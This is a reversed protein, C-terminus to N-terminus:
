VARLVQYTIVADNSTNAASLEFTLTNATPVVGVLYAAQTPKTRITAIVLDTSLVGTVTAASTAGGGAWTHSGVFVPAFGASSVKVKGDSGVSAIEQGSETELSGGNALIAKQILLPDKGGAM